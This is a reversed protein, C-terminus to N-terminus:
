TDGLRIFTMYTYNFGSDGKVVALDDATYVRFQCKHTSTNTVDFIYEAQPNGYQSATGSAANGSVGYSAKSYNSNDPTTWIGADSYESVATHFWAAVFQIKWYGTVPFTFVGSSETMSSGLVGFGTPADVEELNSAIPAADGAFQTTLRWQSAHTIGGGVSAWKLGTSEGSDATLVTDNSGVALRAPTNAATASLIDAKATLTSAPSATWEPATAGSNMTLNQRATGKALRAPTNTGSAYMVDGATTLVSRSSAAWEPATAGSNMALTQRATGKALRALTNDGTAYVLDGATTVVGPATLDINGAAGLYNNWITASILQGTSYDVGDTWAM